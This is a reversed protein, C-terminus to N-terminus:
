GGSSLPWSFWCLNPSGSRAWCLASHNTISQACQTRQPALSAMVDEVDDPSKPDRLRAAVLGVQLLLLRLSLTRLCSSSDGFLAVVIAFM